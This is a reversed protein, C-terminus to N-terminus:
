FFFFGVVYFLFLITVFEIFVKFFPGCLFFFIKFFFHTVLDLVYELSCPSSNWRQFSLTDFLTRFKLDVM